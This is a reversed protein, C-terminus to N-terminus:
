LLVEGHVSVVHLVCSAARLLLVTRPCDSAMVSPQVADVSRKNRTREGDNAASWLFATDSPIFISYLSPPLFKFKRLKDARWTM